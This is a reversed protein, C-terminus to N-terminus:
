EYIFFRFLLFIFIALYLSLFPPFPLLISVQKTLTKVKVLLKGNKLKAATLESEVEARGGDLSKIQQRLGSIELELQNVQDSVLEAAGEEGWGEGETWDTETPTVEPAVSVEETKVLTLTRPEPTHSISGTKHLSLVKVSAYYLLYLPLTSRTSHDLVAFQDLVTSTRWAMSPKAPKSDPKTYRHTVFM